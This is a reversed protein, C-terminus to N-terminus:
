SIYWTAFVLQSLKQVRFSCFTWSLILILGGSSTSLGLYGPIKLIFVRFLHNCFNMVAVIWGIVLASRLNDNKMLHSKLENKTEADSISFTIYNLRIGAVETTLYKQFTGKLTKFM